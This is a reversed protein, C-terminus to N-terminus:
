AALPAKISSLPEYNLIEIDRGYEYDKIDGPDSLRLTPLESSGVRSLQEQAQETHNNYLHVDGGQFVVERPLMDVEQAIIHTLLAYSAINFPLGLFVDVSRQQWLLTLGYEKETEYRQKDVDSLPTAVCQFGTHCPPLHTSQGNHEAPNWAKVVHRRSTPNQKLGEILYAIQDIVVGDRAEWRRWGKGYPAIEGFVHSFAGKRDPPVALIMQRFQEKTAVGGQEEISSGELAECYNAYANATWIDVGEKLLYYLNTQGRLFFLLEKVVGEFWVKKTTLLPFGNILDFRMQRGVVKRTGVGTRDSSPYGQELLASLLHGYQRDVHNPFKTKGRTDTSQM